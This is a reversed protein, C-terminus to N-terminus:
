GGKSISKAPAKRCHVGGHTSCCGGGTRCGPTPLVAGKGGGLIRLPSVFYLSKPKREGVRGVDKVCACKESKMIILKNRMIMIYKLRSHSKRKM